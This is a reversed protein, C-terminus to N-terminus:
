YDVREGLLEVDLDAAVPVDVRLVVRAASRSSPPLSSFPASVPVVTVNRGSASMKSDSSKSKKVSSSRRRSVANRV